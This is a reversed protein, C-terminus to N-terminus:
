NNDGSNDGAPENDHKPSQQKDPKPPKPLEQPTFGKKEVDQRKKEESM